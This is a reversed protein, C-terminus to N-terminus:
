IITLVHKATVSIMVSVTTTSNTVNIQASLQPTEMAIMITSIAIPMTANEIVNRIRLSKGVNKAKKVSSGHHFVWLVTLAMGTAHM